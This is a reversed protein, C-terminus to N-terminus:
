PLGQSSFERLEALPHGTKAFVADGYLPRNTYHHTVISTLGLFVFDMTRLEDLLEVFLSQQEYLEVFSVESFIAEAKEFTRRGGRLVEMEFGQVDMKIFLPDDILLSREEVLRDLRCIEIEEVTHEATHPYEDRHIRSMKLLSSSPASASRNILQRGDDNGIALQYGRFKADGKM